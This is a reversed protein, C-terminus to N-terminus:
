NRRKKNPEFTAPTTIICTLRYVCVFTVNCLINFLFVYLYWLQIKKYWTVDSSFIETQNKFTIVNCGFLVKQNRCPQSELNICIRIM